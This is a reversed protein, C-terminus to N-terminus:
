AATKLQKVLSWYESQLEAERDRLYDIQSQPTLEDEDGDEDDIAILASRIEDLEEITSAIRKEIQEKTM